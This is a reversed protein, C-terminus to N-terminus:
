VITMDYTVCAASGSSVFCSIDLGNSCIWAMIAEARYNFFDVSPQLLARGTELDVINAPCQMRADRLVTEMVPGFKGSPGSLATSGRGDDGHKMYSILRFSAAVALLGTVLVITALFYKKANM